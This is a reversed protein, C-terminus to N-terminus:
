KMKVKSWDKIQWNVNATCLHTDDTDHVKIEQQFNISENGELPSLIKNQFEEKEMSLSVVADKKGQRFYNMELSQMILRYKAPDLRSMLLLGSTYESLTALACAHLGKLHNYNKRKYPLKISISNDTIKLIKIGHPKNFPIGRLLLFNLLWLYFGSHQAKKIISLLQKM